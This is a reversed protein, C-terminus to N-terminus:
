WRAVVMRTRGALDRATIVYGSGARHAAAISAEAQDPAIEIVLSGPRGLWGPAEAVIAEIDAM